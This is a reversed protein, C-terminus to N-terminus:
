ELPSPTPTPRANSQSELVLEPLPELVLEPVSQALLRVLAPALAELPPHLLELVPELLANWLAWKEPAGSPWELWPALAELLESPNLLEQGWLDRGM